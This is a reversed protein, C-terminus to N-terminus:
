LLFKPLGIKSGTLKVDENVQSRFERFTFSRYHSPNSPTSPRSILTDHSPCLFYALSMRQKDSNVVARHEVSKYVDNSWAQLLDGINVILTNPKPKVSVWKGDKMIQLGCVEDQHLITLFDSDTHSILGLIQSPMPCSPYHNLRLFATNDTCHEKFYSPDLGLIEALIGALEHALNAVAEAYEEIAIRFCDFEDERSGESQNWGSMISLPLHFAEMWCLNKLSKATPTGWRYSDVSFKLYRHCNEKLEFPLEFLRTQQVQIQDITDAPIGYNTIQFFGWESAAKGIRDVCAKREECNKSRLGQLDILPLECEEIIQDHCNDSIIGNTSDNFLGQYQIEFPPLVPLQGSEDNSPLPVSPLNGQTIAM